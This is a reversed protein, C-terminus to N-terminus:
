YGHLEHDANSGHIVAGCWQCVGDADAHASCSHADAEEAAVEEYRRLFRDIVYRIYDLGFPLSSRDPHFLYTKNEYMLEFSHSDWHAAICTVDRYELIPETM